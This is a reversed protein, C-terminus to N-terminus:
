VIKLKLILFQIIIETDFSFDNSNLYFPIKKLAQVDYVRYGSHFESM